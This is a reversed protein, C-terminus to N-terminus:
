DLSLLFKVKLEFTICKQIYIYINKKKTLMNCLTRPSLQKIKSIAIFCELNHQCLKQHLVCAFIFSFWYTTIYDIRKKM